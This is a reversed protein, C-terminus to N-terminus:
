ELIEYESTHLTQAGCRFIKIGISLIDEVDSLLLLAAPSPNCFPQLLTIPPNTVPLV